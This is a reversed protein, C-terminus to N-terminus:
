YHPHLHNEVVGRVSRSLDKWQVSGNKKIMILEPQMTIEEVGPLDFLDRILGDDTVPIELRSRYQRTIEAIRFGQLYFVAIDENTQESSIGPEVVKVASRDKTLQVYVVTCVVGLAVILGLLFLLNTFEYGKLSNKPKGM